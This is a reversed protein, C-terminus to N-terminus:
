IKPGTPSWPQVQINNKGWVTHGCQPTRVTVSSARHEISTTDTADPMKGTIKWLMTFHGHANRSRLSARFPPGPILMRCKGQLNGCLMARTFHGHANRSRLSARFPPGPILMRCKGQLNGSLM